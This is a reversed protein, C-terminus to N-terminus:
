ILIMEKTYIDSYEFCYNNGFWKKPAFVKKNENENLWAGWWSFSSNAIINDNCMSMLYIDEYDKQNEIFTINDKNFNNKCWVIDDSFILINDPKLFDLCKNYYVIDQVPHINQLNVYDGRRIHLSVSNTLIPKYKEHINDLINENKFLDLIDRRYKIFYKESQFYGDIIMNNKYPIENYNFRPETYKSTITIKDDKIKKFINEKYYTAPKQTFNGINFDFCCEDDNSKSLSYATAIQFMQNGLGGKLYATIM